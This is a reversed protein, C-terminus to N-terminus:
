VYVNDREFVTIARDIQALKDVIVQNQKKARGTFM